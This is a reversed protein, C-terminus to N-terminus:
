GPRALRELLWREFAELDGGEHGGIHLLDPNWNGWFERPTPQGSAYLSTAKWDYLTFVNGDRDTFTYHGSVKYGDAQGPRGFTDVVRQPVAYIQGRYHTGDTDAENDLQFDDM